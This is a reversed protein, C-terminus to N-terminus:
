KNEQRTVLEQGKKLEGSVLETFRNDSLGVKIEIAKLFEGDTVWVHRRNRKRRADVLERASLVFDDSLEDEDEDTEAVGELLERDEERVQPVEPYFRLASNPIKVVDEAEDVQFSISATMGPLSPELLLKM